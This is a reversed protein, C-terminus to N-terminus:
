TASRPWMLNHPRLHDHFLTAARRALPASATPTGLIPRGAPPEESTLPFIEHIITPPTRAWRKPSGGEEALSPGRRRVGAAHHRGARGGGRCTGRSCRLPLRRVKTFADMQGYDLRHNLSTWGLTHRHGQLCTSSSPRYARGLPQAAIRAGAVGISGVARAAHARHPGSATQCFTAIIPPTSM